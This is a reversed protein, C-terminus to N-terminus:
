RKNIIAITLTIQSILEHERRLEVNWVQSRRGAHINKASVTVLDGPRASKLHNATLSQGAAGQEASVSLGAAVSAATEAVLCSVGGHLLGFPQTNNEGVTLRAILTRESDRVEILELGVFHDVKPFLSRHAAELNSSNKILQEYQKFFVM